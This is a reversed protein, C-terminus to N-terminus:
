DGAMDPTFESMKSFETIQNPLDILTWKVVEKIGADAAQAIYKEWWVFV